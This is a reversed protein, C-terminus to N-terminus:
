IYQLYDGPREDMEEFMKLCEICHKIFVYGLICDEKRIVM